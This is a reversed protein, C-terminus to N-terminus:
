SFNLFGFVAKKSGVGIGTTNRLWNHFKEILGNNKRTERRYYEKLTIQPRPQTQTQKINTKPSGTNYYSYKTRVETM